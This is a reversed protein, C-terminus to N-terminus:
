LFRFVPLALQKWIGHFVGFHKGPYSEKSAFHRGYTLLRKTIEFYM